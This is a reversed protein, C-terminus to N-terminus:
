LLSVPSLKVGAGFILVIFIAFGFVVDLGAIM